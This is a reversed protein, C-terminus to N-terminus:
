FGVLQVEEQLRIGLEDRVRTKVLSGLTVIDEATAVGTNIMYNPHYPSVQAGGLRKGRLGVHDILWGAPLKGDRSEMGTDKQFEALLEPDSVKPNMFFSGASPIKQPHKKERAAMTEQGIRLLEDPDGGPALLLEGEVIAWERNRKFLSDRYGFEAEAAAFKKLLGTELNLATISVTVDGIETGFAGANGRLAGGFSGPIGSLKEIGMLGAAQALSIVAALDEGATALIKSGERQAPMGLFHIILGDFGKDAFVVNSGGGLLYAKLHEQEAYERAEMLSQADHVSVYARAPGGVKFTTFPALLINKQIQLSM